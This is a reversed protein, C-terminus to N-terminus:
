KNNCNSNILLNIALKYKWNVCYDLNKLRYRGKEDVIIEDEAHYNTGKPCYFTFDKFSIVIDGKSITIVCYDYLNGAKSVGERSEISVDVINNKM